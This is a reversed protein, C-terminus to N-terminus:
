KISGSPNAGVIYGNSGITIAINQAKGNINIQYIPRGTGSGQYGVINGKQVAQMIVSPIQSTTVGINAFDATHEELIHQLGSGGLGGTGTELFVVQGNPQKATAIIDQTTFKVGNAALADLDSQSITTGSATVTLGTGSTAPTQSTPVNSINPGAGAAAEDAAAGASGMSGTSSGGGIIPRSGGFAQSGIAAAMYIPPLPQSVDVAGVLIANQYLSM